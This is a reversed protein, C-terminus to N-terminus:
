EPVGASRFVGRLCIFCELNLTSEWDVHRSAQEWLIVPTLGTVRSLVISLKRLFSKSYHM